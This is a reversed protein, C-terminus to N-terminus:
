EELAKTICGGCAVRKVNGYIPTKIRAASSCNLWLFLKSGGAGSLAGRGFILGEKNDQISEHFVGLSQYTPVRQCSPCEGVIIRAHLEAATEAIGGHAHLPGDESDAIGQCWSAPFGLSTLRSGGRIGM